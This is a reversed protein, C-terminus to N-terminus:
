RCDHHGGLRRHLRLVDGRSRAQGDPRAACRRRGSGHFSPGAHVRLVEARTRTFLRDADRRPELRAEAHEACLSARSKAADIRRSCRDVDIDERGDQDAGKEHTRTFAIRRGDPSWVPLDDNFEPDSTLPEIQESGVDILYLHRKSGRQLYGDGDEKFHLADIVIPKSEADSQQMSFALSKGDPSWAYEGVDGSMGSLPRADGGRRDLLMIQDRNSGAPKSTFALYRGDPSWRPKGTGDAAATLALRETGDWSVMWIASRAEDANRDSTTVVYAVWRGDPSVQPDSLEQVRYFDDATLPRRAASGDAPFARLACLTLLLSWCIAARM